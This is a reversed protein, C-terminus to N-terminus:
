TLKTLFAPAWDYLGMFAMHSSKGRRGQGWPVVWPQKFCSCCWRTYTELLHSYSGPIISQPPTYFGFSVALSVCYDQGSSVTDQVLSTSPLLFLKSKLISSLVSIMKHNWIPHSSFHVLSYSVM